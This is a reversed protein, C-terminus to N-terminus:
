RGHMRGIQQYVDQVLFGLDEDSVREEDRNCTQNWLAVVGTVGVVLTEPRSFIFTPIEHLMPLIHILPVDGERRSTELFRKVKKSSELKGLIKDLKRRGFERSYSDFVQQATDNFGTM